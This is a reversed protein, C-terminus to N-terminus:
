YGYSSSSSSSSDSSSSSSSSSSSASASSGAKAKAAPKTKGRDVVIDKKIAFWVGGVGQGNTQGAEKDGKFTYAPWCNFAEQKTGNPTTFTFIVKPDLGLATVDATTVLGSPTWKQLCAADCATTMPWPHDKTFLYLTKGNKDQLVKGLEPSDLVNLAARKVGSKKGDPAAAFWTGGVGQGNTDGATADKSYRYLPWGSLTLQKTGDSRAVWGLLDPNLSDSASADDASVPPWATACDGDCNSKPPSPTDKDFRYLTNGESDTVLAGLKADSRVSLVGATKLGSTGTSGSPSASVSGAAPQVITTTPQTSAGCATALLM